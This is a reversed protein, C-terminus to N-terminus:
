LDLLDDNMHDEIEIAELEKEESLMEPSIRLSTMFDVFKIKCNKPDVANFLLM